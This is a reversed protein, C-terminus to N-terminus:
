LEAAAIRPREGTQDVYTVRVSIPVRGLSDKVVIREGPEPMHGDFAWFGNVSFGDRSVVDVRVHGGNMGRQKGGRASEFGPEPPRPITLGVDPGGHELADEITEATDFEGVDRGRDPHRGRSAGDTPSAWRDVPV